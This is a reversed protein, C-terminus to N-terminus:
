YLTPHDSTFSIMIGRLEEFVARHEPDDVLNRREGPDTSLDFLAWPGTSFWRILKLDGRLVAVSNMSECYLPRERPLHAGLFVPAYSQGEILPNDDIGLLEVVTPLHDVSSVNDEVLGGPLGPIRVVLPVMVEENFLTRGYTQRGHEGFQVGHDATVMVITNDWRGKEILEECVTAIFEDVEPLENLSHSGVHIITAFRGEAPVIGGSNEYASRLRATPTPGEAVENILVDAGGYIPALAEISFFKRHYFKNTLVTVHFGGRKLVHLLGRSEPHAFWPSRHDLAYSFYTSTRYAGTYITPFSEKTSNGASFCRSFRFADALHRDTEPTKEGGLGYLGLDRPRKMDLFIVVINERRGAPLPFPVPSMQSFTSPIGEVEGMSFLAGERMGLVRRGAFLGLKRLYRPFGEYYRELLARHYVTHVTGVYGSTTNPRSSLCTLVVGAILIAGVVLGRPRPLRSTGFRRRVEEAILWALLVSLLTLVAHFYLYSDVYALYNALHILVLLMGAAVVSAIRMWAHIRLLHRYAFGSILLTTGIWVAATTISALRAKAGSLGFLGHQWEYVFAVLGGLLVILSLGATAGYRIPGKARRDLFRMFLAFSIVPLLSLLSQWVPALLFPRGSGNNVLLLTLMTLALTQVNVWTRTHALWRNKLFLTDLRRGGHITAAILFAGLITLGAAQGAFMLISFCGHLFDHAYGSWVFVHDLLFLMSVALLAHVLLEFFNHQTPEREAVISTLQRVGEPHGVFQSPPMAPSELM